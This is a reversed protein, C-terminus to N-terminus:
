QLHSIAVRHTYRGIYDLVQAPGAFPRKAYVVRAVPSTRSLLIPHLRFGKSAIWLTRGGGPLPAARWGSALRAHAGTVDSTFRLCRISFGQTLRSIIHGNLGRGPRGPPLVPLIALALDQRSSRPRPAPCLCPNSRGSVQSIGCAGRTRCAPYPVGASWTNWAQRAEEPSTLLAAAFVFVPPARPAQFRYWLHGPERPRSTTAEMLTTTGRETTGDKAAKYADIV